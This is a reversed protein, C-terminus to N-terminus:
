ANVDLAFFWAQALKSEFARCKPSNYVKFLRLCQLETGEAYYTGKSYTVKLPADKAIPQFTEAVRKVAEPTGFM